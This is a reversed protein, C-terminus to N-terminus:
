NAPRLHSALTYQDARGKYTFGRRTAWTSVEYHLPIVGLDGVAVEAAKQLLAERAKDDVTKLADALIRDMEPNSYRGRNSAGMGSTAEVTALLSRLPSSTEGTAAGWGVLFLSFEQRSARTAYTAWPIADVQTEIGIRTLM